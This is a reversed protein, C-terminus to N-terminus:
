EICMRITKEPTSDKIFDGLGTPLARGEIKSIIAMKGSSNTYFYAFEKHEYIIDSSGNRSNLYRIHSECNQIDSATLDKMETCLNYILVGETDNTIDKQAILSEKNDITRYISLTKAMSITAALMMFIVILMMKYKMKEGIRHWIENNTTRRIIGSKAM